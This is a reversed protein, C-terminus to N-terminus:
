HTATVYIFSNEFHMSGNRDQFPKAADTIAIKLNDENVSKKAAQFPGAAVNVRWLTEFDPYTFPCEVEGSNQGAGVVEIGM